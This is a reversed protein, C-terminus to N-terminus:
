VSPKINQNIRFLNTPDYKNKISALRDHNERYSARVRDGGEAYDTYIPHAEFLCPSEKLLQHTTSCISASDLELSYLHHTTAPPVNAGATM